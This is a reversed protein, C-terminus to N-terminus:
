KLTEKLVKLLLEREKKTHLQLWHWNKKSVGKIKRMELDIVHNNRLRIKLYWGYKDPKTKYIKM